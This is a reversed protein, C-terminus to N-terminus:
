TESATDDRSECPYLDKGIDTMWILPRPPDGVYLPQVPFASPTRRPAPPDYMIKSLFQITIESGLFQIPPRRPKM